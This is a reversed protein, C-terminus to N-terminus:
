YSLSTYRLSIWHTLLLYFHVLTIDLPGTPSPLTGYLYGTTWYIKLTDYPYGTPLYSVTTYWISLWYSLLLYFHVMSIALPGIPSPLTGYLYGNPWCFYCHLMPIALPDIFFLTHVMFIDLPRTFSLRTVYPNGTPWYSQYHVM